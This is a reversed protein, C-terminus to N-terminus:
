INRRYLIGEYYVKSSPVFKVYGSGFLGAVHPKSPMNCYLCERNQL